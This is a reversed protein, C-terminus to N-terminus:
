CLLTSLSIYGSILHGFPLSFLKGIHWSCHLKLFNFAWHLCAYIGRIRLQCAAKDWQTRVKRGPLSKFFCDQWGRQRDCQAIATDLLLVTADLFLHHPWLHFHLISVKRWPHLTQGMCVGFFLFLFGLWGFVAAQPKVPFLFIKVMGEQWTLLPSDCQGASCSIHLIYEM